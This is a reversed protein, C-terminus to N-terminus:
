EFTEQCFFLIEGWRDEMRFLKSAGEGSINDLKLARSVESCVIKVLSFSPVIGIAIKVSTKSSIDLLFFQLFTCSHIERLKVPLEKNNSPGITQRIKWVSFFYLTGTKKVLLSNLRGIPNLRSVFKLVLKLFEGFHVQSVTFM